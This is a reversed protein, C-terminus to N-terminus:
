IFALLNVKIKIYLVNVYLLENLLYSAFGKIEKFLRWKWCFYVPLWWYCILIINRWWKFITLSTVDSRYVPFYDDTMSEQSTAKCVILRLFLSFSSLQSIDPRRGPCSIENVLSSCSHQKHPQQWSFTTEDPLHFYFRRQLCDSQEFLTVKSSILIHKYNACLEHSDGPIESDTSKIPMFLVSCFRGWM